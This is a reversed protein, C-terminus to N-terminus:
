EPSPDGTKIAGHRFQFVSGPARNPLSCSTKIAGHRFQFAKCHLDIIKEEPKSRVTDSNFSKVGKM